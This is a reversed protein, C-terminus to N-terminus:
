ESVLLLNMVCPKEGGAIDDPKPKPKVREERSEERGGGEAALEESM